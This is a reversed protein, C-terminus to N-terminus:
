YSLKVQVIFGAWFELFIMFYIWVNVYCHNKRFELNNIGINFFSITSYLSGMRSLLYVWFLYGQIFLIGVWNVWSVLVPLSFTDFLLPVVFFKHFYDMVLCYRSKRSILDWRSTILIIFPFYWSIHTNKRRIRKLILLRQKAM